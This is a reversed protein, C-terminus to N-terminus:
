PFVFVCVCVVRVGFWGPVELELSRQVLQEKYGVVVFLLTLPYKISECSWTLKYGVVPTTMGHQRRRLVLLSEREVDWGVM